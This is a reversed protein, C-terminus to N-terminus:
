RQKAEANLRRIEPLRGVFHGNAVIAIGEVDPEVCRVQELDKAVDRGVFHLQREASGLSSRRQLRLAPILRATIQAQNHRQPQEVSPTSVSSGFLRATM